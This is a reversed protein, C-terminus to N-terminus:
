WKRLTSMFSWDVVCLCLVKLLPSRSTNETRDM